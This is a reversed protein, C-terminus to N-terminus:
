TNVKLKMLQFSVMLLATFPSLAVHREALLIILMAVIARHSLSGDGIFLAKPFNFFACWCSCWHLISVVFLDPDDM